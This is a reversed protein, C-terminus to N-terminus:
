CRCRYLSTRWWCVCRCAGGRAQKLLKIATTLALLRKFVSCHTGTCYLPEELSNRQQKDQQAAVGSIYKPEATLGAAARCSQLACPLMSVHLNSFPKKTGIPNMLV